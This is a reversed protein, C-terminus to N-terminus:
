FRNKIDSSYIAKLKLFPTQDNFAVANVTMEDDPRLRCTLEFFLLGTQAPNIMSLFKINDANILRLNKKHIQELIETIMQIQCVGPIVPNGPFHGKYIPHNPHIEVRVLYKHNTDSTLQNEAGVENVSLISFFKNILM